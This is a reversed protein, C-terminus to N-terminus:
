FIPFQNMLDYHYVWSENGKIIYQMFVPDNAVEIM